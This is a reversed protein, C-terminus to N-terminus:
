ILCEQVRTTGERGRVRIANSVKESRAQDNSRIYTMLRSVYAAPRSADENHAPCRKSGSQHQEGPCLSIVKAIDRITKVKQVYRLIYILFCDWPCRFTSIFSAM